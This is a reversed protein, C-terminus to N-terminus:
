RLALARIVSSAAAVFYGHHIVYRLV